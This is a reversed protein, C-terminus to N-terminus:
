LLNKQPFKENDNTALASLLNEKDDLLESPNTTLAYPRITM